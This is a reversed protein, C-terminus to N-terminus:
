QHPSDTKQILWVGEFGPSGCRLFWKGQIVRLEPKTIQRNCIEKMSEPTLLSYDNVYRTMALQEPYYDSLHWILNEATLFTIMAASCICPIVVAKM